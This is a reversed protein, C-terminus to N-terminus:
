FYVPHFIFKGKGTIELSPAPFKIYNLANFVTKLFHSNTRIKTFDVDVSAFFQRYTEYPVDSTNEEPLGHAGYGVSVNLWRPIRSEKFFSWLNVSLWYTQGNYDKIIQQLLNEGLKEPYLAPFDTTHFSYKYQIRQEDWLLEQSILLGTGLANAAVDGPSFGWQASFGDFIEVTTLFVFGLTAGYMLQHKKTEGSWNLLDMGVKGIVYSSYAHGFKDMQLWASNDNYFHFDSRPYNAYWMQNLGILAAGASVGETIFITNRRKVNLTDSPKFFHNLKQAFLDGNWLFIMWFSFLMLFGRASKRFPQKM